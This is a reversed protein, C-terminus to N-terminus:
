FTKLINKPQDFDMSFNIYGRIGLQIYIIRHIGQIWFQDLSVHLMIIHPDTVHYRRSTPYLFRTYGNVKRIKDLHNM